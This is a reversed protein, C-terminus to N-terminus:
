PMPTLHPTIIFVVSLCSVQPTSPHPLRAPPKQGLFASPLSIELLFSGVGKLCMVPLCAPSMLGCTSGPGGSFALQFSYAPKLFLCVRLFSRMARTFLSDPVPNHPSPLHCSTHTHQTGRRGENGIVEPNGAEKQGSQM